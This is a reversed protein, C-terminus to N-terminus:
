CLTSIVEGGFSAPNFGGWFQNLFAPHHTRVSHDMYQDISDLVGNLGVGKKPIKLDVLKRLEDPGAAERMTEEGARDRWM